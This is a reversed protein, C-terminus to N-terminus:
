MFAAVDSQAVLGKSVLAMLVGQMGKIKNELGDVTRELSDIKAKREERSKKAADKAKDRNDAIREGFEAAADYLSPDVQKLLDEFTPFALIQEMTMGTVAQATGDKFYKEPVVSKPRATSPKGSATRKVPEDESEISVARISPTNDSDSRSKPPRGRPRKAPAQAESTDSEKRKLTTLPTTPPPTPPTSLSLMAPEIATPAVIPSFTQTTQAPATWGLNAYAQNLADSLDLGPVVPEALPAFKALFDSLGLDNMDMDYAPPAPIDQPQHMIGPLGFNFVDFADDKPDLALSQESETSKPSGGLSSAPSPDVPDVLFEDWNIDLDATGMDTMEANMQSIFADLDALPDSLPFADM